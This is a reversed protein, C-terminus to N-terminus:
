FKEKNLIVALGNTTKKGTTKDFIETTIEATHKETNIGSVTFIAEYEQDVFMPRLYESSQKLYVSGFGPFQTGMIKSFVSSALAGHIIPKKFPTNAAFEADLHLPNNDGSVQAFLIVDNQTFSFSHKFITGLPIM